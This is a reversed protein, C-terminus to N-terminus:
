RTMPGVLPAWPPLPAIVAATTVIDDGHQRRSSSIWRQYEGEDEDWYRKEDQSRSRSTGRARDDHRRKGDRGRDLDRDPRWRDYTWNTTWRRTRGLELM